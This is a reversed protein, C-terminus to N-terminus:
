PVVYKFIQLENNINIKCVFMNGALAPRYSNSTTITEHILKGSLDYFSLKIAKNEPNEFFITGNQQYINNKIKVSSIATETCLKQLDAQLEEWDMSNSETWDDICGIVYGNSLKLVSKACELTAYDGSTEIWCDVDFVSSRRVLMILTDKEQYLLMNDARNNELCFESSSYGYGWVFISSVEELNGKLDEIIEITRGYEFVEGAVGKIFFVANAQCNRSYIEKFSEIKYCLAKSHASLM